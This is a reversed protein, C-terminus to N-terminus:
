ELPCPAYVAVNLWNAAAHGPTLATANVIIAQATIPGSAFYM